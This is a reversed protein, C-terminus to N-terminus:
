ARIRLTSFRSPSSTGAWAPSPTQSGCAAWWDRPSKSCFRIEWRMAGPITSKRSITWLDLYPLGVLGDERRARKLAVDFRDHFLPRNPLGTLADRHAMHRLRDQIQTRKIASAIQTSVFQLLDRDDATYSPDPNRAEVVVVGTVREGDLLPVYFNGMPLLEDIINHILRCLAPLSEAAHTAESIRYLAARAAESRKLATVDRAVAIRLRDSESWRASWSLYVVRGDQHQYRNEFDTHSGEQMIRGAAALTRERDDPHV